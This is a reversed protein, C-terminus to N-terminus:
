KLLCLSFTNSLIWCLNKILFVRLPHTTSPFNRLSIFILRFTCSLGLMLFSLLIDSCLKAVNEAEPDQSAAAPHWRPQPRRRSELPSPGAESSVHNNTSKLEKLARVSLTQMDGQSNAPPFGWDRALHVTWHQRKSGWHWCPLCLTKALHIGFRIYCLWVFMVAQWRPRIRNTLILKCTGVVSLLCPDCVLLSILLQLDHPDGWTRGSESESLLCSPGTCQFSCCKQSLSVLTSRFLHLFIRNECVLFEIYNTHWNEGSQDICENLGLQLNQLLLFILFKTFISLIIRFNNHFNLPGWVGFIKFFPSIYLLLEIQNWSKNLAETIM